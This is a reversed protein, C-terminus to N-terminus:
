SKIKGTYLQKVPFILDWDKGWVVNGEEIKFKKFNNVSKYKDLYSIKNDDFFLSFDVERKVGNNFVVELTLNHLYKADSVTIDSNKIMSRRKSEVFNAIKEFRKNSKFASKRAVKKTAKKLIPKKKPIAKKTKSKTSKKM